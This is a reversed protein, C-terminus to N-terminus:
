LEERNNVHLGPKLMQTLGSDISLEQGSIGKALTSALFLCTFAIEDPQIFRKQPVHELITKEAKEAPLNHLEAITQILGEKMPTDVWGPCLANVTIGESALELAWVKTLNSVAAKTSSYLSYTELGIKATMSSLNIIRGRTSRKIKPLLHKSALMTGKVNIDYIRDWDELQVDKLQSKIIIGANNVLVDVKEPIHKLAQLISDEASIDTKCFLYQSPNAVSILHAEESEQVDWNIVNAGNALFAKSIAMGIGSSGGTIVVTLDKM